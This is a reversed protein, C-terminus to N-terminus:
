ITCIRSKYVLYIITYNTYLYIIFRIQTEIGFYQSWSSGTRLSNQAAFIKTIFICNSVYSHQLFLRFSRPSLDRSQLRFLKHRRNPKKSSFLRSEIGTVKGRLTPKLTSGGAINESCLMGINNEM